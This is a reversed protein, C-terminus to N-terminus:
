ASGGCAEQTSGWVAQQRGWAPSHTAKQRLRLCGKICRHATNEVAHSPIPEKAQPGPPRMTPQDRGGRDRGGATQAQAGHPLRSPRVPQASTQAQWYLGVHALSSSLSYYFHRRFKRCRVSPGAPAAPAM